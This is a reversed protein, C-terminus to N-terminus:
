KRDGTFDPLVYLKAAKAKAELKAKKAMLFKLNQLEKNAAALQNETEKLEVEKRQLVLEYGVLTKLMEKNLQEYNNM